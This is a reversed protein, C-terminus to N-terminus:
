TRIEKVNTRNQQCHHTESGDEDDIFLRPLGDNAPRRWSSITLWIRRGSERAAEGRDDVPLTQPVDAM